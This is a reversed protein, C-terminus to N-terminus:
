GPLTTAFTCSASLASDEVVSAKSLDRRARGLTRREVVFSRKCLRCVYLAQNSDSTMLVMEHDLIAADRLCRDVLEQMPIGSELRVPGLPSPTARFHAIRTATPIPQPPRQMLYTTATFFLKM